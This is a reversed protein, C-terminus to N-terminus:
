TQPGQRCASTTAPTSGTTAAAACTIAATTDKGGGVCSDERRRGGGGGRGYYAVDIDLDILRSWWPCKVVLWGIPAFAIANTYRCGTVVIPVTVVIVLVTTITRM